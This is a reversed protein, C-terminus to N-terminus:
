KESPAITISKLGLGVWFTQENEKNIKVPMTQSCLFAIETEGTVSSDADIVFRVHMTEVDDQFKVSNGDVFVNNVTIKKSPVNYNFECLKPDERDISVSITSLAAPGSWVQKGDTPYWNFGSFPVDPKVILMEPRTKKQQTAGAVDSLRLRTLTKEIKSLRSDINELLYRVYNPSSPSEPKTAM